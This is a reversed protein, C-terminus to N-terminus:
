AGSLRARRRGAYGTALLGLSWALFTCPEPIDNQTPGATFSVITPNPDILSGALDQVGYVELDYPTGQTLLADLVLLVESDSPMSAALVFPAGPPSVLNYRFPDTASFEEVPESFTVIVGDLGPTAEAGLVSLPDMNQLLYGAAARSCFGGVLIALVCLVVMRRFMLM